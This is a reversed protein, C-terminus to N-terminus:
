MNTQCNIVNSLVHEIINHNLPETNHNFPKTQVYHYIIVFCHLQISTTTHLVRSSNAPTNYNIIDVLITCCMYVSLLEIHHIDYHDNHVILTCKM